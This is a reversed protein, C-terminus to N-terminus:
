RAHRAFPSSKRTTSSRRIKAVDAFRSVEDCGFVPLQFNMETVPVTFIIGEALPTAVTCGGLDMQSLLWGGFIDGHANTFAPLAVTRLAMASGTDNTSM